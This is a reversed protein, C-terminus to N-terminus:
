QAGGYFDVPNRPRGGVRVEFHLHPGTSKGTSGVYGIVEGADVQQGPAVVISSLHFYRTEAVGHSIIVANGANGMWGAAEVVGAGAAHVPTGTPAAVDLGEHFGISGNVPDIREGFGSTINFVGTLPWVLPGSEGPKWGPPVGSGANLLFSLDAVLYNQVEEMDVGLDSCVEAM